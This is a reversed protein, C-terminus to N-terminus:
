CFILDCFVSAKMKSVWGTPIQDWPFFLRSESFFDGFTLARKKPLNVNYFVSNAKKGHFIRQEDKEDKMKYEKTNKSPCVLLLYSDLCGKIRNPHIRTIPHHKRIYPM